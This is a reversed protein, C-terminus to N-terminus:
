FRSRYAHSPCIGPRHFNFGYSPHDHADGAGGSVNRAHATRWPYPHLRPSGVASRSQRVLVASRRFVVRQSGVCHHCVRARPWGSHLLGARCAPCTSAHGRRRYRLVRHFPRGRVGRALSARMRHAVTARHAGPKSLASRISFEPARDATRAMLLNAVNMCAIVLILAVCAMLVLSGKRAPGALEDRLADMSSPYQIKEAATRNPWFRDAEIAFAARAQPWTVGPKLRAVTEWGNNGPSFAAPKWVVAKGPYDFGPPAVGIITLPNGDLRITAGLAQPDGAFLDQWLGYGIVAVANRGRPGWGTGDVDDGPAFGRGLVPQTGLVSFFNSSAQVAHARRWEGAGGLNVDIQEFLATDALYASQRRWEHFQKASDHPEFFWRLYALRQPEHFPLSRLLLANVVSFVGTNAGIGIALALIAFGIHWPRRAWLRVTHRADQTVERAVQLPVSLVLDM